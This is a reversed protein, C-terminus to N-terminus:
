DRTLNEDHQDNDSDDCREVGRDVSSIATQLRESGIQHGKQKGNFLFKGIFNSGILDPIM